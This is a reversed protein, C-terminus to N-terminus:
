LSINEQKKNDTLYRICKAMPLISCMHTQFMEEMNQLNSDVVYYKMYHINAGFNLISEYPDPNDPEPLVSTIYDVNTVGVGELAIKPMKQAGNEFEKTTKSVYFYSSDGQTFYPRLKSPIKSTNTVFAIRNTIDSMGSQITQAYRKYEDMIVALRSYFEPKESNLRFHIILPEGTSSVTKGNPDPVFYRQIVYKMVDKLPINETASSQEDLSSVAYGVYVDDANQEKNSLYFLQFDLARANIKDSALYDIMQLNINKGDYACNYAGKVVFQNVLQYRVPKDKLYSASFPKMDKTVALKLKNVRNKNEEEYESKFGEFSVHFTRM